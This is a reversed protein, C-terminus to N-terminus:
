TTKAPRTKSGEEKPGLIRRLVKNEHIRLRQEVLLTLSWTEKYTRSRVNDPLNSSLPNSSYPLL